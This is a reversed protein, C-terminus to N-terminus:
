QNIDINNWQAPKQYNVKKYSKTLFFVVKDLILSVYKSQPYNSYM